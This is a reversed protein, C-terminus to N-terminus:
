KVLLKLNGAMTQLTLYIKLIFNKDNLIENLLNKIENVNVEKIKEEFKFNVKM